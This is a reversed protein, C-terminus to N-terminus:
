LNGCVSTVSDSKTLLRGNLTYTYGMADSRDLIVMTFTATQTQTLVEGTFQYTYTKEIEPQIQGRGMISQNCVM